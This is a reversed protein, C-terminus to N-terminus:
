HLYPSIHIGSLHRHPSHHGHSCRVLLSCWHQCCSCRSFRWPHHPPSPPHLLLRLSISHPPPFPNPIHLKHSSRLAHLQQLPLTKQDQLPTRLKISLRNNSGNKQNSKISNTSSKLLNLSIHSNPIINNLTEQLLTLSTFPIQQSKPSSIPPFTVTM